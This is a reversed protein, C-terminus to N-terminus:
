TQAIIAVFARIWVFAHALQRHKVANSERAQQSITHM